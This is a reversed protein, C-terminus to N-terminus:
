WRDDSAGVKGGAVSPRDGRGARPQAANVTLARGALETGNLGEIAARAEQDSSMEVFGFGRSRGTERDTVITVHKVTGYEEFVERVADQSTSYSLNGVYIRM